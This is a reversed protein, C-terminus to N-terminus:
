GGGEQQSFRLNIHEYTENKRVASVHLGKHALCKVSLPRHKIPPPKHTRSCRSRTFKELEDNSLCSIRKLKLNPMISCLSAV